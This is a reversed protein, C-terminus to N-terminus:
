GAPLMVTALPVIRADARETVVHEVCEFFFPWSTSTRLGSSYRPSFVWM